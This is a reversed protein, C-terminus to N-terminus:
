SPRRDPRRPLLQPLPRHGRDRHAEPLAGGDPPQGRHAAQPRRAQRAVDVGLVRSRAATPRAFARSSRSRRPRARATRGSCASSRAAARCRLRHRRGGPHRRLAEHPWAGPHRRAARRMSRHHWLSAGTTWAQPATSRGDDPCGGSGDRVLRHRPRARHGRAPRRGRAGAGGARPVGGDRGALGVDRGAVESLIWKQELVDCYAQLPDRGPGIAPLSRPSARSSCTRLWRDAAEGEDVSPAPCAPAVRPVRAPRQAAAAGPGRAGPDRDTARARPRPLSPQRRRGEPPGRRARREARARDRRGRLRARQPAPHPGPHRTSRRAPLEPELHLEDWVATYRARVTEAAEVADDTADERGQMAGLDALGFAVNEVSSTSTTRASATRSRRTSRARRPTSSSRRSRTATGGSCRTRSRATAGSCARGISTSWSGPWRM